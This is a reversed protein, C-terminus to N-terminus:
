ANQNGSLKPHTPRELHNKPTKPSGRVLFVCKTKIYKESNSARTECNSVFVVVSKKTGELFLGMNPKPMHLFPSRGELFGFPFPLM